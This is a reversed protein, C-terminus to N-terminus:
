AVADFSNPDHAMYQMSNDSTALKFESVITGLKVADNNLLQCAASVEEVMAANQQTVRDLQVVGTNIEGLGISQEKAGKAIESVLQSVHSVRELINRLADGANGVLDVGRDVQVSSNGILTKIEMAADSSRQALARVESAVVAFGRGAEGARAAEVGANLALLNTQFSIDDIVSIIQSIQKSSNEIETMAAVANQVVEESTEAEQKAQATIREVNDAGEAAARVSSTLEELAAATEELTAAQSETRHSLDDSSQNIESAGGRISATTDVVRAVTENLTEVTKNFDSRLKEHEGTFPTDIQQSFDGNSLRLLGASLSEVVRQQEQQQGARENEAKQAKRLDGQMSVLTKGIMGIEDGREAEAVTTDLKGSSVAQMVECIHNIPKTISRAFLWGLFSMVACCLLSLAAMIKAKRLVPQMVESADQEVVLAWNANPIDLPKSYSMVRTNSAGDVNSSFLEKGALGATVAALQPLEDLVQFRGEFRSSTRTKQDDGVIYLEVTKALGEANNTIKTLMSVPIQFAAVGVRAGDATFVPTAVFAAASSNSSSFPEMDSLVVEGTKASNAAKFARALGTDKYKGTNLNTAYDTEKFVSYVIDGAPNVLFADYYGKTEIVTRLGHHYRAHERHYREAGPARQLLHKEGAANNNNTVYARTLTTAASSGLERWSADFDQLAAGTSHQAALTRLDGKVSLMLHQISTKRDAALTEMKSNLSSMAFGHFNVIAIYALVLSTAGCFVAIFLPLKKSLKLSGQSLM